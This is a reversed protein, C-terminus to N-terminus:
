RNKRCASSQCVPVEIPLRPVPGPAPVRIHHRLLPPPNCRRGQLAVEQTRECLVVNTSSPVLSRPPRDVRLTLPRYAQGQPPARRAGKACREFRPTEATSQQHFALLESPTP